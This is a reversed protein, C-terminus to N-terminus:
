WEYFRTLAVLILTIIIFFCIFGANRTRMCIHLFRTGVHRDTSKIAIRVISQDAKLQNLHFRQKLVATAVSSRTCRVLDVIM